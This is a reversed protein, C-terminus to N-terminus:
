NIIGLFHEVRRNEEGRINNFHPLKKTNHRLKWCRWVIEKYNSLRQRTDQAKEALIEIHTRKYQLAKM